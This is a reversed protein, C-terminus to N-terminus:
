AGTAEGKARETFLSPLQKMVDAATVVGREVKPPVGGLGSIPRTDVHTAQARLAGVTCKERGGMKGMADFRLVRLANQHSIMEIEADTCKATTFDAWLQEPSNPWTIDAHPYDNEFMITEVGIKHRAELGFVDEIFCSFFRERFFESPLKSGFSQHTWPGHNRMVLDAREKFYPIWGIGGESLIIKLDTFERMVSSWLWESAVSFSSLGVKTLFADIPSEPSLHESGGGIGIHCCLVMAHDSLAKWVPRWYADHISPLGILTPLAPFSVAVCGRAALRSIEAVMESPDWLPIQGLPIFRGPAFDCWDYQYYDNYAKLMTLGLGRDSARMWTEGCMGSVSGFCLASMVGNVSMDDVRAKPDYCGSRIQAYSSPEFGLEERPRGAVANLAFNPHPRGEFVWVDSGDTAKEIKPAHSRWKAPIHKNLLDPPEVIHDDVSAIVMDELKM